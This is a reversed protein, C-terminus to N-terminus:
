VLCSMIVVVVRQLYVLFRALATALMLWPQYPSSVLRVRSRSSTRDRAGYAPPIVVSADRVVSSRSPGHRGPRVADSRPSRRAVGTAAVVSNNVGRRTCPPQTCMTRARPRRRRSDRQFPYQTDANKDTSRLGVGRGRNGARSM